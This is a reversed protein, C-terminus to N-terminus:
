TATNPPSKDADANHVGHVKTHGVPFVKAFALAVDDDKFTPAGTPTQSSKQHCNPLRRKPSVLPTSHNHPHQSM